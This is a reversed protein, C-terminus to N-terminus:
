PPCAGVVKRFGDCTAGPSARTVGHEQSCASSLGENSKNGPSAWRGECAQAMGASHASCPGTVWRHWQSSSQHDAPCAEGSLNSELPGRPAPGSAGWVGDQASM